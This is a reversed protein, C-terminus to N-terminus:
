KATKKNALKSVIFMVLAVCIAVGLYIAARAAHSAVAGGAKVRFTGLALLVLALLGVYIGEWLIAGFTSFGLKKGTLVADIVFFVFVVACMIGATIKMDVFVSFILGAELTLYASVVPWLKKEGIHLANQLLLAFGVLTLATKSFGDLRPVGPFLVPIAGQVIGAFLMFVIIGVFGYVGFMKNVKGQYDCDPAKWFSLIADVVWVAGFLLIAYSVYSVLATKEGVYPLVFHWVLILAVTVVLGAVLNIVKSGNRKKAM